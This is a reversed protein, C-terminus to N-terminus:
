LGKIEPNRTLFNDDVQRRRIQTLVAASVVQGDGDADDRGGPLPFKRAHSFIYHHPLQPQVAAYALNGACEGEGAQHLLGPQLAYDKRFCGRQLGQLDLVDLNVPHPRQRVHEGDQLLLLVAVPQQYPIGGGVPAHLARPVVDPGPVLNRIEGVDYALFAGLASHLYGRRSPM